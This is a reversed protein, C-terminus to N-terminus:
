TKARCTVLGAGILDTAIFFLAEYDLSNLLRACDPDCLNRDHFTLAIQLAGHRAGGRLACM